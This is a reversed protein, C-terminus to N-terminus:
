DNEADSGQNSRVAFMLKKYYTYHASVQKSPARFLSVPNLNRTTTRIVRSIEEPISGSDVYIGDESYFALRKRFGTISNYSLAGYHPNYNRTHFSTNESGAALFLSDAKCVVLDGYLYGFGRVPQGDATTVRDFDTATTFQRHFMWNSCYIQDPKTLSGAVILMDNYLCLYKGEPCPDNAYSVTDGSLIQVDTFSASYTQTTNSTTGVYNYDTGGPSLIYIGIQNVTSDTSAYVKVDLNSGILAVSNSSTSPNSENGLVDIYTYIAEYSGSGSGTTGVAVTSATSPGYLAATQFSWTSGIKILMNPIGGDENSVFCAGNNTSVCYHLNNTVSFTKEVTNNEDFQHILSLVNGAFILVKENTGDGFGAVSQFPYISNVRGSVNMVHRCGRRKAIIGQDDLDINACDELYHPDKETIDPLTNLGKWGKLEFTLFPVSAPM